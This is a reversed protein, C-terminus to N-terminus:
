ATSVLRAAREAKAAEKQFLDARLGSQRLPVAPQQTLPSTFPLM